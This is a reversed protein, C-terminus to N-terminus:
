ILIESTHLKKCTLKRSFTSYTKCSTSVNIVAATEAIAKKKIDTVEKLTGQPSIYTLSIDLKLMILVTRMARQM